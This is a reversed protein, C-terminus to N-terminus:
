ERSPGEPAFAHDGGAGQLRALTLVILTSRITTERGPKISTCAMGSIVIPNDVDVEVTTAVSSSDVVPKRAADAGPITLGTDISFQHRVIVRYGGGEAMHLEGSLTITQGGITVRNHFSAGPRAVTEISRLVNEQHDAVDPENVFGITEVRVLYDDAIATGSGLVALFCLTWQKM